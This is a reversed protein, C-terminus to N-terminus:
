DLIIDKYKEALKQPDTVEGLPDHKGERTPTDTFGDYFKQHFITLIPNTQGEIGYQERAAACVMKCMQAFQRYAPNNQRREGYEWNHIDMRNVGCAMYLTGNTIKMGSTACLNIYAEMANFLTEPRDLDVTQRIALITKIMDPVATPEDCKSLMTVPQPTMALDVPVPARSIEYDTSPPVSIVGGSEKLAADM